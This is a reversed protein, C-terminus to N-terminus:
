LFSLVGCAEIVIRCIKMDEFIVDTEVALYWGAIAHPLFL